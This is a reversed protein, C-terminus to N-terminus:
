NGSCVTQGAPQTIIAPLENVAIAVASATVSGCSNTIIVDYNAADNLAVSGISYTANTAVGINNGGKRWQFTLNGGSAAVSLTATNGVCAAQPIPQTTITPNSNATLLGSNSNASGSANTFVARYLNGGLGASNSINLTTSASANSATPLTSNTVSYPASITLNSYSSGNNTSIQWVVSSIIGSSATASFSTSAANCTTQNFPQTSVIPQSGPVGVQFQGFGAASTFSNSPAILQTSNPATGPVIYSWAGGLYKGLRYLAVNSVADNDTTTYNATVGYSNFALTSSAPKTVEWYTNVSKSADISSSGIFSNDGPYVTVDLTGASSVNAFSVQIPTYNTSGVEFTRVTAGTSINKRFNGAIFGSTRAVTGA